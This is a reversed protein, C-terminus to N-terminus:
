PFQSEIILPGGFQGAAMEEIGARDGADAHVGIIVHVEGFFAVIQQCFGQRIKNRGQDGALYLTM